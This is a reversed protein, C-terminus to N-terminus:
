ATGLRHALAELDEGRRDDFARLVQALSRGAPSVRLFSASIPIEQSAIPSVPSKPCLRQSVILSANTVVTRSANTPSGSACKKFVQRQRPMTTSSASTVSGITSGGVTM